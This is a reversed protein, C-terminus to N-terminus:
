ANIKIKQSFGLNYDDNSIKLIETNVLKTELYETFSLYRYLLQVELYKLSDVPLNKLLDFALIPSVSPSFFHFGDMSKLKRLPSIRVASNKDWKKFIDNDNLEM